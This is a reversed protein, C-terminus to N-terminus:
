WLNVSKQVIKSSVWRFEILVILNGLILPKVFIVFLVIELLTFYFIQLAVVDFVMM